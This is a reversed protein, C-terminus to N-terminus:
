PKNDSVIELLFGKILGIELVVVMTMLYAGNASLDLFHWPCQDVISYLVKFHLSEVWRSVRKVNIPHAAGTLCFDVPRLVLLLCVFGIIIQLQKMKKIQKM